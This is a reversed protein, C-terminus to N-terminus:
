SRIASAATGAALDVGVGVCYANTACSVAQLYDRGPETEVKWGTIGGFAAAYGAPPLGPGFSFGVTECFSTSTCSISFLGHDNGTKPQPAAESLWLSGSRKEVLPVDHHAGSIYHGVLVCTGSTPCSVDSPLTQGGPDAASDVHWTRGNWTEALAPARGAAALSPSDFNGVTACAITSYCDIAVLYGYAAAPPLPVTDITWSAGNWTAVFPRPNGDPAVATGAAKCWTASVCDVANITLQSWGSPAAPTVALNWTAGDWVMVVPVSTQGNDASGTAVCASTTPCSVSGVYANTMGAPAPTPQVTWSSGDWREALPVYPTPTNPSSSGVATCANSASCSVDNLFFGSLAGPDAFPQAHWTPTAADAPASPLATMGLVLAAVVWITKRPIAVM